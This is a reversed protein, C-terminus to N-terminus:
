FCRHSLIMRSGSQRWLSLPSFSLVIAAAGVFAYSPGRRGIGLTVRSSVLSVVGWGLVLLAAIVGKTWKGAAGGGSDQKCSRRSTVRGLSGLEAARGAPRTSPLRSTAGYDSSPPLAISANSSACTLRCRELSQSLRQVRVTSRTASRRPLIDLGGADGSAFLRHSGM